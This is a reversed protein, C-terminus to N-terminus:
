LEAREMAAYKGVDGVRHGYRVAGQCGDPCAIDESPVQRERIHMEVNFINKNVLFSFM